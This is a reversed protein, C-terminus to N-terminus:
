RKKSIDTEGESIDYVLLYDDEEEELMITPVSEEMKGRYCGRRIVMMQTDRLRYKVTYRM